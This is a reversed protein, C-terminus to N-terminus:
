VVPFSSAVKVRSKVSVLVGVMRMWRVGSAYGWPREGGPLARRPEGIPSSDLPALSLPHQEIFPLLGFSGVVGRKGSGRCSVSTHNGGAIMVIKIRQAACWGWLPCCPFSPEGTPSSDLLALSLPHPENFPVLGFNGVVGGKGSVRCKGWRPCCPFRPEGTPSSDLLALSLPHQENFPVLGFNGVVGGKGSGRCKGWRPCCPGRSGPPPATSCLSVSPTNNSSHHCGM